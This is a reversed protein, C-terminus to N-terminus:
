GEFGQVPMGGKKPIKGPRDKQEDPKFGSSGGLIRGGSTGQVLDM